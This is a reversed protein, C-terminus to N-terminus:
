RGNRGRGQVLCATFLGAGLREARILSLQCVAIRELAFIEQSNVPRYLDLLDSRLNYSEVHDALRVVTTMSGSFGHTRANLASKMKGAASRPGTSKQANIRNAATQKDTAM